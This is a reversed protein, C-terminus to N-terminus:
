YHGLRLLGDLEAKSLYNGRDWLLGQELYSPMMKSSYSLHVIGVPRRPPYKVVVEQNERDREVAGVHCNYNHIAELPVFAGTSYILHNLATQESVHFAFPKDSYDRAFVVRLEDAYGKWLPCEASMAFVGASFLARGKMQEAVQDGYSVQYWEYFYGLFRLYNEESPGAYNFSYSFDIFPALVVRDPSSLATSLALEVSERKQVWVDADLYLYCAYGPFIHPIFPRCVLAKMYNAGGAPPSLAIQAQDFPAIRCSHQSMWQRTEPSCGIDILCLDCSVDPLGLALLSLVLGKGLPAFTEDLAFVIASRPADNHGNTHM